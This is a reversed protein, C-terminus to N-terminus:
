NIDIEYGDVILQTINGLKINERDDQRFNYYGTKLEEKIKDSSWDNPVKVSVDITANYTVSVWITKDQQYKYREVIEVAKLYQEYTIEM